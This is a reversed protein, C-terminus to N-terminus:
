RFETKTEWAEYFYIQEQINEWEQWSYGGDHLSHWLHPQLNTYLM